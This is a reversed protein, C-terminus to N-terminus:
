RPYPIFANCIVGNIFTFWILTSFALRKGLEGPNAEFGKYIPMRKALRVITEM